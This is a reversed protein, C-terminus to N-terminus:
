SEWFIFRELVFWPDIYSAGYSADILDNADIKLSVVYFNVEPWCVVLVSM